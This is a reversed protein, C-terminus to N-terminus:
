SVSKLLCFSLTIVSFLLSLSIYNCKINLQFPLDRRFLQSWFVSSSCHMPLLSIVAEKMLKMLEKELREGGGWSLCAIGARGREYSKDEKHPYFNQM